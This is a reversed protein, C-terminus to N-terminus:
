DPAALIAEYKKKLELYIEESVEGFVFREELANLLRQAREKEPNKKAPSAGRSRPADLSAQRGQPLPAPEVPLPAKSKKPPPAEEEHIHPSQPPSKVLKKDLEEKHRMYEEDSIQGTIFQLKLSDLSQATSAQDGATKEANLTKREIIEDALLNRKREDAKERSKRVEEEKQAIEPQGKMNREVQEALLEWRRADIQFRDVASNLVKLENELSYLVDIEDRENFHIEYPIKLTDLARLDAHCLLLDDFSKVMLAPVPATRFAVYNKGLHLVRYNSPVTVSSRTGDQTIITLERSGGSLLEMAMTGLENVHMEGLRPNQLVLEQYAEYTPVHILSVKVKLTAGSKQPEAIVMFSFDESINWSFKTDLLRPHQHKYYISHNKGTISYFLIEHQELDKEAQTSSLVELIKGTLKSQKTIKDACLQTGSRNMTVNGLFANQLALAKKSFLEVPEPPEKPSQSLLVIGASTVLTVLGSNSVSLLSFKRDDITRKWIVREGQSLTIQSDVSHAFYRANPSGKFTQVAM